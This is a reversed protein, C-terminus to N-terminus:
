CHYAYQQKCPEIKMKLSFSIFLELKLMTVEVSKQHVYFRKKRHLPSFTWTDSEQPNKGQPNASFSVIHVYNWDDYTILELSYEELTRLSKVWSSIKDEQM